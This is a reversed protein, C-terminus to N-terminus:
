GAKRVLVCLLRLGPHPNPAPLLSQRGHSM